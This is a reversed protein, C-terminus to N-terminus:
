PDAVNVINGTTTSFVIKTDTRKNFLDPGLHGFTGFQAMPLTTDLVTKGAWQLEVRVPTAVRYIIDNASRKSETEPQRIAPVAQPTLSILIPESTASAETQWGSQPSFYALPVMIDAKDFLRDLCLVYREKKYTGCFLSLLGREREDLSQLMLRLQEGDKPMFDAQGKSLSARATRIDFIERAALKALSRQNTAQLMEPTAIGSLSPISDAEDSLLVSSPLTLTPEIQPQTNIAALIGTPSLSLLPATTKARLKIVYAQATDPVGFTEIRVDDLTWTESKEIPTDIRLLPQAFSALSGPTYSTKTATVVFRFATRPLLYVVGDETGGKGIKEVNTQAMTSGVSVILFSLFLIIRKM